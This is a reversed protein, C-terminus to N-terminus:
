QFVEKTVLELTEEPRDSRMRAITVLAEGRSSVDIEQRAGQGRLIVTYTIKTPQEHIM